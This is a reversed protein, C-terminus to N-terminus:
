GFEISDIMNDAPDILIYKLLIKILICCNVNLLNFKPFDEAFFLWNTETEVHKTQTTFQLTNKKICIM